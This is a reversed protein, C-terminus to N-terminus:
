VDRGHRHVTAPCFLFVYVASWLGDIVGFSRPRNARFCSTTRYVSLAACALIKLRAPWDPCALQVLRKYEETRELM